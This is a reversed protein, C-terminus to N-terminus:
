AYSFECKIKSNVVDVVMTVGEWPRDDKFLNNERFFIRLDVLLDLIKGTADKERPVFWKEVGDENEYFYTAKIHDNGYKMEANIKIKKSGAPASDVIILAIESYIESDSKM